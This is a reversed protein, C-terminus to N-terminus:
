NKAKEARSISARTSVYTKTDEYFEPQKRDYKIVQDLYKVAKFAISITKQSVGKSLAFKKYSSLWTEFNEEASTKFSSGFVLIQFMLFFM